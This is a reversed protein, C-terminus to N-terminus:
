LTLFTPTSAAFVHGEALWRSNVSDYVVTVWSGQKTDAELTISDDGSAAGNAKVVAVNGGTSVSWFLAGQFPQTGATGTTIDVKGGTVDDIVM